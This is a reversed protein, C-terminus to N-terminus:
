TILGRRDESSYLKTGYHPYQTRFHPVYLVAKIPAPVYTGTPDRLKIVEPDDNHPYLFNGHSRNTETLACSWTYFEDNHDDFLRSALTVAYHIRGDIVPHTAGANINNNWMYANDQQEGGRTFDISEEPINNAMNWIQNADDDSMINDIVAYEFPDRFYQIDM